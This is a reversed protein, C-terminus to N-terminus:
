MCRGAVSVFGLLEESAGMAKASSPGGAQGRTVLADALVRGLLCVVRTGGVCQIRKLLEIRCPEVDCYDSALVVDAFNAKFIRCFAHEYLLSWTPTTVGPLEYCHPIEVTRCLGVCAPAQVAYMFKCLSVGESVRDVAFATNAFLSGARPWRRPGVHSTPQTALSIARRSSSGTSSKRASAQWTSRAPQCTVLEMRFRALIAPTFATEAMSMQRRDAFRGAIRKRLRLTEDQVEALADSINKRCIAMRNAWKEWVGRESTGKKNWLGAHVQAGTKPTPVRPDCTRKGGAHRALAAANRRAVTLEM